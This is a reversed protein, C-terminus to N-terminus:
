FGETGWSFPVSGQETGASDYIRATFGTPNPTGTYIVAAQYPRSFSDLGQPQVWPTDASIFAYGFTIARGGVLSTNQGGDSRRRSSLRLNHSSIRAYNAGATCSLTWVVRVYRFNTALTSTGAAPTTWADGLAAKYQLQCSVNVTGQEVVYGLTVQITTSAAIVTGYDFNEEYTASTLSPNAYRPYGANIQDQPSNWGRSSFHTAWTETTNVPGFLTGNELGLNTRTTSGTFTFDVNTRLVYDPPQSVTATIAAATGVNGATDIAAVWYSYVGAVQEFVMAFTSNGNSGVVTGAAWSAGKRVEYRDIPLGGTAPAGWYLLVNNDVVDARYSTVLGPGSVVVDVSAPTGVNGAADIAAVWWRRTGSWDVPRRFALATINAVVTGGAWTTGYRLEYSAIAYSAAGATWSLTVERGSIAGLITPAGPAAVVVAVSAATTSYNGSTDRAKILVTRTGATQVRWLHTNARPRDILTATEWTAGLRLEYDMLDADAIEPWSLRVGFEELASAISAVNSPPTSKGVVRHTITTWTSAAGVGNLARIAFLYANQDILPAISTATDDGDVPPCGIWTQLVPDFYRVEIRGSQRVYGDSHLAWTLRVGSAITGDGRRTLQATGSQAALGMPASVNWLYSLDPAAPPNTPTFRDADLAYSATRTERLRLSYTGDWHNTYRAVEWTKGDFAEYFTLDLQVTDGLSLNAGKGKVVLSAEFGNRTQELMVGMLYNAQRADTTGQMALDIAEENGNDEALYATNKVPQPSGSVWNKRSDYFTGTAMNPPTIRASVPVFSIPKSAEVDADTLTVTASRFSGAFLKYLGATFARSGAMTAMIANLNDIPARATSLETNCEYRKIQEYGGTFSRVTILEDCVNAAAAVSPWDIWVSPIGMGGQNRPLTMYWASLLAPNSSWTYTQANRPDYVGNPGRVVASIAPAGSYFANENWSMLTRIYAVGRLRHDATWKPTTVDSWNTVVQDASGAHTQLRLCAPGGAYHYMAQLWGTSYPESFTLTNGSVTFSPPEPLPSDGGNIWDGVLSVDGIPTHDLTLTTGSFPSAYTAGELIRSTSYQGTTVYGGTFDSLPVYQDGTYIGLISDIECGSVAIVQDFHEKVDGITDAYLLVGGTRVTGLILNRPAAGSRVTLIRDRLSNNWNDKAKQRAESAMYASVVLASAISIATLAIGTVGAASAAATVLFPIAAPM